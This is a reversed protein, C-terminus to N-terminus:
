NKGQKTTPIITQNAKYIIKYGNRKKITIYSSNLDINLDRLM